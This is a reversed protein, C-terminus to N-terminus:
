SLNIYVLKYIMQNKKNDKKLYFIILLCKCFKIFCINKEVTVKTIM